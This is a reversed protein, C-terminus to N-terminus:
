DKRQTNKVRQKRERRDALLRVVGEMGNCSDLSGEKKREEERGEIRREMKYKKTSKFNFILVYMFFDFM